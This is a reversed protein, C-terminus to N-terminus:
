VCVLIQSVPEEHGALQIQVLTHLPVTLSIVPQPCLGPPLIALKLILIYLFVYYRARMNILGSQTFHDWTFHSWYLFDWSPLKPSDGPLVRSGKPSQLVLPEWEQLALDKGDFFQSVPCPSKWDTYCQVVHRCSELDNGAIFLFLLRM